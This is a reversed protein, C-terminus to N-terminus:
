ASQSEIYGTLVSRYGDTYGTRFPSREWTPRRDIIQVRAAAWGLAIRQHEVLAKRAAEIGAAKGDEYTDSV